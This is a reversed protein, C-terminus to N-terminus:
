NISGKMNNTQRLGFDHIKGRLATRAAFEKSLAMVDKETLLLMDKHPGLGDAIINDRDGEVDFGCHELAANIAIVESQAALAAATPGGSSSGISRWRM